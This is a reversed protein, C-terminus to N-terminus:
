GQEAAADTGGLPEGRDVPELGVAVEAVPILYGAEIVAEFTAKLLDGGVVAQVRIAADLNDIATIIGLLPLPM